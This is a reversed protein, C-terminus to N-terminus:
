FSLGLREIKKRHETETTMIYIRTTEISSHGLIDALKAIDKEVSYFTRAFLKRLNHPFVKGPDVNALICLKKMDAWINSRNIANGSRTCFIMGSKIGTKQAYKLLQNRLKGPILIKRTKNKCSVFVSGTRVYEVTFYRLESVRIGTSCITEILIYLRPNSSAATLLRLYETKSLEKNGAAYIQKQLKLSKVRCDDWELFSFLSNISAIKSNISRPMYGKDVLYRKYLLAVDKTICRGNAYRMFCIADKVYKEITVLSKEEYTLHKEWSKIKHVDLLRKKM